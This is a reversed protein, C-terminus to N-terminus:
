FTVPRRRKQSPRLWKLFFSCRPSPTLSHPRAAPPPTFPRPAPPRSRSRPPPRAGSVDLGAKAPPAPAPVAPLTPAMTPFSPAGGPAAFPNNTARAPPAAFAAFPDAGAAPALSLGAMGAALQQQPAPAASGFAAMIGAAKSAPAPAPAPAAGAGGGGGGGGGFAGFLDDMGGGGGGGGGAAAHPAPKAPAVPFADFGLLDFPDASPPAPAKPAAAAPGKAAAAAPAKAGGSSSGGGGGGGGVASAAEMATKGKKEKTSSAQAMIDAMSGALSVEADACRPKAKAKFKGKEYKDRIWREVQQVPDDETPIYYDEPVLAEWYENARRNGWRVMNEVQKEKWEDLSVSRVFSIHVGLNRHIGSCRICM